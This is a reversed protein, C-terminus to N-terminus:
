TTTEGRLFGIMVPWATRDELFFVHGGELANPKKRLDSGTGNILLLPPRAGAFEYHLTAGAVAATPM